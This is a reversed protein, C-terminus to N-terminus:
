EFRHPDLHLSLPSVPPSDAFHLPSPCRVPSLVVFQRSLVLDVSQSSPFPLLPSPSPYRHPSDMVVIVSSEPVAIVFLVISHISCRSENQHRKPLRHVNPSLASFLVDLAPEMSNYIAAWELSSVRSEPYFSVSPMSVFTLTKPANAFSLSYPIQIVRCEADPVLPYLSYCHPVAQSVFFLIPGSEHFLSNHSSWLSSPLFSQPVSCSWIEFPERYLNHNSIPVVDVFYQLTLSIWESLMSELWWSNSASISAFCSPICHPCWFSSLNTNPQCQSM